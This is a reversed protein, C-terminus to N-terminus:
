VNEWMSNQSVQGGMIFLKMMKFRLTAWMKDNILVAIKLVSVLLCVKIEFNRVEANLYCILRINLSPKLKQM